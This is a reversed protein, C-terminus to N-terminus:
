PRKLKFFVTWESSRENINYDPPLEPAYESLGLKMAAQLVDQLQVSEYLEVDRDSICFGEYEIKGRQTSDWAQERKKKWVREFARDLRVGQAIREKFANARIQMNSRRAKDEFSEEEEEEEENVQKQKKSAAAVAAVHADFVDQATPVTTTEEM